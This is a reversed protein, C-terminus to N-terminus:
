KVRCEIRSFLKNKVDVQKSELNLAKKKMSSPQQEVKETWPM